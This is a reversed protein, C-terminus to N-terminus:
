CPPAPQLLKRSSQHQCRWRFLRPFSQHAEYIVRTCNTGIPPRTPMSRAATPWAPKSRRFRQMKPPLLLPLTKGNRERMVVVVRRKGSKNEGLPPRRPERQSQSASMAASIAATSKSTGSAKEGEVGAAVAERLKMALIYATKYNRSSRPKIATRQTGKRRQRLNRNGLPLRSYRNKPQRLNNSVYRHIPALMRQLPINQPNQLHLQRSLRLPSLGTRRPYGVM